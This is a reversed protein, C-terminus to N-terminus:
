KQSLIEFILSAALRSTHQDIDFKPNVEAIDIAIIKNSETITRIIELAQPPNIGLPNPASVGPAYAENFVDMCVTFYVDTVSKIFQNLGDIVTSLDNSIEESTFYKVGLDDARNFLALTNSQRQIGAVLYKFTKENKKHWDAIQYFPTGSSAGNESPKRLDFHADLNIIGINNDNGSKEIIGQFTGWAMEHGGGLIIPTYSKKLIVSILNGLTKQAEGLNGAKCSINGGDYITTDPKFYAPLNCMSQRITDPGDAAGTRGKNRKVGEDCAFGLLVIGKEDNKQTPLQENGLDIIRIFEHWRLGDPGEEKDSRGSWINEPTKLYM